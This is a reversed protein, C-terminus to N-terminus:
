YDLGLLRFTSKLRGKPQCYVSEDFDQKELSFCTSLFLQAVKERLRGDKEMHQRLLTFFYPFHGLFPDRKVYFRNQTVYSKEVWCFRELLFFVDESSLSLMLESPFREPCLITEHRPAKGERAYSQSAIMIDRRQSETLM